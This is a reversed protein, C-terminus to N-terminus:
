EGENESNEKNSDSSDDELNANVVISDNELNDGDIPYFTESPSTFKFQGFQGFDQNVGDFSFPLNTKFFASEPFGRSEPILQHDHTLFQSGQSQVDGETIIARAKDSLQRDQTFSDSHQIPLEQPQVNFISDQLNYQLPFQLNRQIIEQPVQQDTREFSQHQVQQPIQQSHEVSSKEQKQPNLKTLSSQDSSEIFHGRSDKSIENRLPLPRFPFTNYQLDLEQKTPVRSQQLKALIYQPDFSPSGPYEPSAYNEFLSEGNLVFFRQGPKLNTTQPFAPANKNAEDSLDGEGATKNPIENKGENFTELKEPKISAPFSFDILDFTVADFIMANTTSYFRITFMSIFPEEYKVKKQQKM